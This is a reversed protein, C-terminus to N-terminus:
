KSKNQPIGLTQTSKPNLNEFSQIKVASVKLRTVLTLHNQNWEETAM